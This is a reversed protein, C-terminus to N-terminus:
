QAATIQADGANHINLYVFRFGQIHEIFSGEFHLGSYQSSEISLSDTSRDFLKLAIRDANIYAQAEANFPLLGIPNVIQAELQKASALQFFRRFGLVRQLAFVTTPRAQQMLRVRGALISEGSSDLFTFSQEQQQSDYEIRCVTQQALLALIERNYAVAEATDNWLGHCLLRAQPQTLIQQLITLPEDSAAPRKDHSVLISIQLERHPGLSAERGDVVWICILAKGLKTVIPYVHEGALLQQVGALDATGGILLASGSYIHYPVPVDGVSIHKMTTLGFRQFLPHQNGVFKM